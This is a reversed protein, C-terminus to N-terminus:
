LEDVKAALVFDSRTLGEVKHTWITLVVRGWSLQIDPHHGEQEAIAGVRNAFDLASVFDPFEYSKELHHNDVVRWGNGLEELLPTIDSEDLPPVGGRCPVCSERSLGSM